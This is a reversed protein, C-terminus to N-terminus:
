SQTQHKKILAKERKLVADVLERIERNGSAEAAAQTKKALAPNEMDTILVGKDLMLKVFDANKAEIAYILPTKGSADPANAVIGDGLIQRLAKEYRRETAIHLYGKGKANVMPMGGVHYKLRKVLTLFSEEGGFELAALLIGTGDACSQRIRWIKYEDDPLAKAYAEIKSRFKAKDNQQLAACADDRLAETRALEVAELKRKDIMKRALDMAPILDKGNVFQWTMRIREAREEIRIKEFSDSFKQFLDMATRMNENKLRTNGSQAEWAAMGMTTAISGLVQLSSLSKIFPDKHTPDGLTYESTMTIGDKLDFRASTQKTSLIAKLFPNKLMRTLINQVLATQKKNGRASLFATLRATLDSYASQEHYEIFADQDLRIGMDAVIADHLQQLSKVEPLTNAEEAPLLLIGDPLIEMVLDERPVAYFRDRIRAKAKGNNEVGARIIAMWPVSDIKLGFFGPFRRSFMTENTYFFAFPFDGPKLAKLLPEIQQNPGASAATGSLLDSFPIGYKALFEVPPASSIRFFTNLKEGKKYPAAFAPHAFLLAAAAFGIRIVPSM